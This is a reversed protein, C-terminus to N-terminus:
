DHAPQATATHSVLKQWARDEAQMAKILREIQLSSPACILPPVTFCLHSMRAFMLATCSFCAMQVQRAIRAGQSAAARRWRCSCDVFAAPQYLAHLCTRVALLTHFIDVQNTDGWLCLRVEHKLEDITADKSALDSRAQQLQSVQLACVSLVTPM